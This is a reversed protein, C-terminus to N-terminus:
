SRHKVHEKQIAESLQYVAMAYNLSPNYQMISKFNPFAMWYESSHSDNLAIVSAFQQTSAASKKSYIGHKALEAVSFSPIAKPSIYPKLHALSTPHIKSAVAENRQWGAKSLYNAVSMIVDDTDKMLDIHHNGSYDVGYARYSSPMFQPMGFAGAYSGNIKTPSLHQNHCMVLYQALEHTFFSARPPYFFSLTYLANLVSYTGENQGYLTEVGLIAIIVSPDVGYKKQALALTKQHKKWFLAGQDIRKQTLFHKIYIDFPQKEYPTTMKTIVSPLYKAHNLTSKINANSLHYNRSLNQIFQQKQAPKPQLTVGSSTLVILFSAAAIISRSIIRIKM